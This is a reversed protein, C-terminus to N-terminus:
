ATSRKATVDSIGFCISQTLRIAWDGAAILQGGKQLKRLSIVIILIGPTLILKEIFWWLVELDTDWACLVIVILEILSLATILLITKWVLPISRFIYALGRGTKAACIWLLRLLRFVLTNKLLGGAKIRTAFSLLYGLILLFDALGAVTLFLGTAFDGYINGLLGAELAAAAVFFATYLDFPIKDIKNLIVADSRVGKRHGASCFLFVLLVFFILIGLLALIVAAYRLSYATDVWYLATSLSDKGTMVSKIYITVTYVEAPVYEYYDGGTRYVEHYGVGCSISRSYQTEQGKVDSALVAGTEDSITFYYNTEAYRDELDYGSYLYNSLEQAYGPIYRDMVRERADQNSGTYGGAYTMFAVIVGMGVTVVMSITILFVATIKAPLSHTLNTM